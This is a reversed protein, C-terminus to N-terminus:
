DARFAGHLATLSFESAPVTELGEVPFPAYKKLTGSAGDFHNRNVFYGFTSVRTKTSNALRYSAIGVVFFQVSIQGGIKRAVYQSEEISKRPIQIRWEAADRENPFITRMAIRHDQHRAFETAGNLEEDVRDSLRVTTDVAYLAVWTHVYTAVSRGVNELNITVDIAYHTDGDILFPGFEPITAKVWARDTFALQRQLTRTQRRMEALTRTAAVYTVVLGAVGALALLAQLWGVAHEPALARCLYTPGESCLWQYM